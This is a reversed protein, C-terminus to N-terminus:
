LTVTEDPGIPHLADPSWGRRVNAIRRPDLAEPGRGMDLLMAGDNDWGMFRGRYVNGSRSQFSLIEGNTPAVGNWSWGGAPAQIVNAAPAPQVVARQTRALDLQDARLIEETGDTKVFRVMGDDTYGVIRGTRANGRVSYLTVLDDSSYQHLGEISFGPRVTELRAPNLPVAGQGMDLLVNGQPDVGMYRGRYFNGSKSQYSVVEGVRPQYIQPQALRGTPTPARDVNEVRLRAADGDPGIVVSSKQGRLGLEAVDEPSFAVQGNPHTKYIVTKV